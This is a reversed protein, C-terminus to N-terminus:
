RGVEAFDDAIKFVLNHPSVRGPSTPDLAIASSISNNDNSLLVAKEAPSLDITELLENPNKLFEQLKQDDESLSIVFETFNSPKNPSIVSAMKVFGINQHYVFSMLM